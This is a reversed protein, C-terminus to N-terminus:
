AILKKIPPRKETKIESPKPLPKRKPQKSIEKELKDGEAKPADERRKTNPTWKNQRNDSRYKSKNGNILFFEADKDLDIFDDTADKLKSSASRGFSVVEVQCGSHKLHDVLPVFDGDGSILIVTDLKHAMRIADVAIGVDWDAKKAGSSFVQLDKTKTEIGTKTLADFFASEEGSESTIVYAVARVIIRGAVAENLVNSFNVNRGYLKKASHYLNQADIFIGVRQESHKIVSM